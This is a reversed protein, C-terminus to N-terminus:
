ERSEARQALLEVDEATSGAPSWALASAEAALDPRDVAGLERSVRELARRRRALDGNLSAERALALARELPTTTPTAVALAASPNPAGWWLRRALLFAGAACATALALLLAALALPDIRYSPEPLSSEAARWDILDVQEDSVRSAVEFAPWDLASFADGSGTTYRYGVRGTEFEAVGRAGSTDCGEDLCQLPYRFRLLAVGDEIKREVTRPGAQEYPAFEGLIRISSPDIVNADLLVEVTAVVPEGFVHADPTIDTSIQISQSPVTGGEGSDAALWVLGIALGVLAALALQFGLRLRKV